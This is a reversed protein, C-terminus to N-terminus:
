QRVYTTQMGPGFVATFSKGDGTVTGSYPDGSFDDTRSTGDPLKCESKGPSVTLTSASMKWSGNIRCVIFQGKEATEVKSAEIVM